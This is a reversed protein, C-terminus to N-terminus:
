GIKSPRKETLAAVIRDVSGQLLTLDPLRAAATDRERALARNLASVAELREHLRRIKRDYKSRIEAEAAAHEAQEKIRQAESEEVRSLAEMREANLRSITEYYRGLVPLNKLITSKM